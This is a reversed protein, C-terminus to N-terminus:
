QAPNRFIIFFGKLNRFGIQLTDEMYIRIRTKTIEARSYHAYTAGQVSWDLLHMDTDITNTIGDYRQMYALVFPKYDLGHYYNYYSGGTFNNSFTVIKEIELLPYKSNALFDDPISSNASRGEKSIKVGVEIM